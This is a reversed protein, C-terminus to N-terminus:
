AKLLKIEGTANAPIKINSYIGIIGAKPVYAYTPVNATGSSTSVTFVARVYDGVAAGAYEVATAYTFAPNANGTIIDSITLADFYVINGDFDVDALVFQIPTETLEGSLINMVAEADAQTIEGDQNVDGLLHMENQLTTGIEVWKATLQTVLMTIAKIRTSIADMM